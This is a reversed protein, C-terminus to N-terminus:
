QTLIKAYDKKVIITHEFHAVKSRNKSIIVWKNEKSNIGFNDKISIIPELAIITNEELVVNKLGRFMGNAIFPDCHACDGLGHGGLNLIAHYGAKKCLIDTYKAIDHTSIGAHIFEIQKYLIEYTKNVLNQEDINKPQGAIITIAMDTYYKDEYIAGCDIKVIDGDLIIKEKSPIGHVCEENISICLINPYSYLGLFAPKIVSQVFLKQAELEIDFTTIGPKVILKLKQMIDNLHKGCYELKKEQESSAIFIHKKPQIM